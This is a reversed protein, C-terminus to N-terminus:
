PILVLPYWEALWESLLLSYEESVSYRIGGGGCCCCTIRWRDARPLAEDLCSGEAGPDVAPDVLETDDMIVRLLDMGGTGAGGLSLTM